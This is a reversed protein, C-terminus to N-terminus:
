IKSARIQWHTEDWSLEWRRPFLTSEDWCSLLISLCQQRTQRNGLAYCLAFVVIWSPLLVFLSVRSYTINYPLIFALLAMMALIPFVFRHRRHNPQMQALSFSWASAGVFIVSILAIGSAVINSNNALTLLFAILLLSGSFAALSGANIAGSAITAANRAIVYQLQAREKAYTRYESTEIAQTFASGEALAKTVDEEEVLKRRFYEAIRPDGLCVKVKAAFTSRDAEIESPTSERDVANIQDPLDRETRDWVYVRNSILAALSLIVIWIGQGMWRAHGVWFMYPWTTVVIVAALLALAGLSIAIVTIVPLLNRKRKDSVM